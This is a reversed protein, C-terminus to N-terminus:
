VMQDFTKVSFNEQNRKFGGIRSFNSSRKRRNKFLPNKLQYWGCRHLKTMKKKLKFVKLPEKM